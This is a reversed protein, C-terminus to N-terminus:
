LSSKNENVTIEEIDSDNLPYEVRVDLLNKFRIKFRKVFEPYKEKFETYKPRLEKEMVYGYAFVMCGVIWACLGLPRNLIKEFDIFLRLTTDIFIYM